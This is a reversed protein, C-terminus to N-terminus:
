PRGGGEEPIAYLYQWGQVLAIEEKTQTSNDLECYMRRAADRELVTDAVAINAMELDALAQDREAAALEAAANSVQVEYAARKVSMIANRIEAAVKDYKERM